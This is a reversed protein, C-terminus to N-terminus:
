FISVPLAAQDRFGAPSDHFPTASRYRNADFISFELCIKEMYDPHFEDIKEM